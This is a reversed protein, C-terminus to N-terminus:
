RCQIERNTVAFLIAWSWQVHRKKTETSIRVTSTAIGPKWQAYLRCVPAHRDDLRMYVYAAVCRM